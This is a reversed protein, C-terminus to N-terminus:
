DAGQVELRLVVPSDAFCDAYIPPPAFPSAKGIARRVKKEAAPNSPSTFSLDRAAGDSAVRLVFRVYGSGPRNTFSASYLIPYLRAKLYDRYEFFEPKEFCNLGVKLVILVLMSSDALCDRLIGTVNPLPKAREFAMSVAERYPESSVREFQASEILGVNDVYLSLTASEDIPPPQDFVVESFIAQTVDHPFESQELLKTCAAAFADASEFFDRTSTSETPMAAPTRAPAVPSSCGIMWGGLLCSALQLAVAMRGM